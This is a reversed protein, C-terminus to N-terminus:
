KIFLSTSIKGSIDLCQIFHSRLSFSLCQMSFFAFTWHSFIANYPMLFVCTQWKVWVRRLLSMSITAWVLSLNNKTIQIHPKQARSLERMVLVGVICHLRKNFTSYEYCISTPKTKGNSRFGEVLLFPLTWDYFSQIEKWNKAYKKSITGQQSPFIDM